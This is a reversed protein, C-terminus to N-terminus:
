TWLKIDMQSIRVNPRLVYDDLEAPEDTSSKLEDGNYEATACLCHICSSMRTAPSMSILRLFASSFIGAYPMVCIFSSKHYDSALVSATYMSSVYAHCTKPPM